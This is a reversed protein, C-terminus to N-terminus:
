AGSRSFRRGFANSKIPFLKYSSTSQDWFHRRNSNNRGELKVYQFREMTNGSNDTNKRKVLWNMQNVFKAPHLSPVEMVESM